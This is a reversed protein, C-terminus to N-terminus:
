SCTDTSGARKQLEFPFRNAKKRFRRFCFILSPLMLEEEEGRKLLLDDVATSTVLHLPPDRVVEPKGPEDEPPYEPGLSPLCRVCGIASKESCINGDVDEFELHKRSDHLAGHVGSNPHVDLAGRIYEWPHNLIGRHEDVPVEHPLVAFGRIFAETHFLGPHETKLGALADM